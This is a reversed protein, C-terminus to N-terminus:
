LDVGFQKQLKKSIAEFNPPPDKELKDEVEMAEDLTMIKPKMAPEGKEAKHKGQRGKGCKTRAKAEDSEVGLHGEPPTYGYTCDAFTLTQSAATAQKSCEKRKFEKPRWYWVHVNISRGPQATVQHYWRNPIYICDGPALDAYSWEVTKWGPYKILDVQDVDILGMFSGYGPISRNADTDVWGFENNKTKEFKKRYKPHMFIFRKHGDFMCNLNDQDDYHVVSKSGGRGMWMSTTDLFNTSGGCTLVPLFEVDAKMEEPVQAVLYIDATNYAGLFDRLKKIHMAKGGARTEKLSYEVGGATSADGYRSRLYDDSWLMAKMDAAAGRFVVPRGWGKDANSYKEYFVEPRPMEWLEEM